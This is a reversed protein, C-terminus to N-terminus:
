VGDGTIISRTQGNAQVDEFIQNNAQATKRWEAVRGITM